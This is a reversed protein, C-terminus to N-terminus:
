SLIGSVLHRLAKDAIDRVNGNTDALAATLPSLDSESIAQDAAVTPGVVRAIEPIGETLLFDLVENWFIDRTQDMWWLYQFHLVLSPRIAISLDPDQKIKAAATGPVGRLLLRAVAYDYLIHHAFTLVAREPRGGAPRQWEVLVHASLLQNLPTSVAPDSAVQGRNVRLSRNAVMEQVALRLVAERADGRGDRRIVREQWYRELLEVQTRIPTIEDVSIGESILDAMLRLNFPVRLLALLEGGSASILRALDASKHSIEDIEHDDFVPIRLHRVDLFEGDSLETPPSGSFAARLDNAYRLDYRRISAVVRWRQQKVMLQRVLDRLTKQAGESRAADLADIIMYGLQTGPWNDIVNILDHELGIEDRLLGASRAEIRDASLLIFDAGAERIMQALDFLAGSKGAGPDSVVVLGAQEAAERLAVTSSRAVKVTNLGVRIFSLDSLLEGISLSYEKLKAIDDRYSRVAKLSIGANLLLDQLQKRDAGTRNSAFGACAAVLMNWASQAQTPEVLVSSRLMGQAEGEGRGREDVDLEQIWVMGLLARLNDESPQASVAGQWSREVHAKVIKLARLEAANSAAHELSEAPSLSRVRVLVDRLCQKIPVSSGPGVVLVLRDRGVDLTDLVPDSAGVNRSNELFLRVFQDIASALDSDSATQLSISHKAQIFGHGTASTEALIDDVPLSVECRISDLTVNSPLGWPASADAEALIHVSLWAAVRNQYGIGSQTASGGGTHSKGM